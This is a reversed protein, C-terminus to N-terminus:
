LEPEAHLILFIRRSDSRRPNRSHREWRLFVRAPYCGQPVSRCLDAVADAVADAADEGQTPTTHLRGEWRGDEFLQERIDAM